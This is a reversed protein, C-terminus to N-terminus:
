RGPIWNPLSIHCQKKILFNTLRNNLIRNFLKGFSSNITLCRYNNPDLICKSKYITSIYGKNWIKPYQGTQFIINFVKTILTIVIKSSNKLMENCINDLGTAKNNKLKSISDHVEKETIKFDLENFITCEELQALKIKIIDEIASIKNDTKLQFLYDYWDGPQISNSPETKTINDNLLSDLIKWYQKPDEYQLTELKKILQAKYKRSAQKCAKKYKKKLCYFSLRLTKDFPYDAMLCGRKNVLKKLNSLSNNYWKNKVGKNKKPKLKNRPIRIHQPLQEILLTNLKKVTQDINEAECDKILNEVKNETEASNINNIFSTQLQESWKVKLSNLKSLNMNNINTPLPEQIKLMTTIMCHDSLNGIFDEVHFYLIDEYLSESIISYDVVSSGNYTHCTYTGM